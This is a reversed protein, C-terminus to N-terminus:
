EFEGGEWLDLMRAYNNQTKACESRDSDRNSSVKWGCFRRDTWYWESYSGSDVRDRLPAWSQGLNRDPRIELLRRSEDSCQDQFVAGIECDDRTPYNAHKNEAVWVVPHLGDGRGDWELEDDTWWQSADTSAGFHASLYVYVKDLNDNEFTAVVVIFEPDGVHGTAGGHDLDGGDIRYSLAYFISIFDDGAFLAFHPIRASSQELEGYILVPAFIEALMVEDSDAVNDEDDDRHCGHDGFDVFGPDCECSAVEGRVVCSSNRLLCTVDACPDAEPGEGNNGGGNNGGDDDVFGGPDTDSGGEDSVCAAAMAVLALGIGLQVLRLGGDCCWKSLLRWEATRTDAPCCTM